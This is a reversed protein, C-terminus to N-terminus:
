SGTAELLDDDLIEQEEQSQPLGWHKRWTPTFPEVLRAWALSKYSRVAQNRPGYGLKVLWDPVAEGTLLEHASYGQRLGEVFPRLDLYATRLHLYGSSMRKQPAMVAGLRAHSGEVASSAALVERFAVFVEAVLELAEEGLLAQLDRWVSLMQRRLKEQKGPWPGGKLQKELQWLHAAAEVVAFPVGWRTAIRIMVRRYEVREEVVQQGVGRLYSAAWRAYTTGLTDLKEAVQALQQRSVSLDRVRGTQGDIVDFAQQGQRVWASVQEALAIAAVEEALAADLLSDLKAQSTRGTPGRAHRKRVGEVKGMAQYAKTEFQARVKELARRPHDIDHVVRAQPWVARLAKELASMGDTAVQQPQLGQERLRKMVAEWQRSDRGPQKESLFIYLSDCDVGTLEWRGWRTMEDFAAREVHELPVSSLYDFSRQYSQWVVERVLAESLRLGYVEAVMEVIMAYTAGCSARLHVIARKIANADIWVWLGQDGPAIPPRPSDFGQRLAAEGKCAIAYLTPRSIDLDRALQSRNLDPLAIVKASLEVRDSVSIDPRPASMSVEKRM